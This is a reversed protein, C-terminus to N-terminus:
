GQSSNLSVESKRLTFRYQSKGDVETLQVKEIFKSNSLLEEIWGDIVKKTYLKKAMKFAGM